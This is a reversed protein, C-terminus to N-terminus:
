KFIGIDINFYEILQKLQEDNKQFVVNLKGLANVFASDLPIFNDIYDKYSLVVCSKVNNRVAMIKFWIDDAHLCLKEFIEDDFIKDDFCGPFYLIGGVGIPFVYDAPEHPSTFYKWENYKLFHSNNELTMHRAVNCCISGPYIQHANVLREIMDTPYICDDDVTIIIDDPYEKLTYILKKYSRIDKCYKVSLGRAQQQKINVPLTDDSFKDEALWLVVVDPKITQRAISEVALHVSHIRDGYTTLSVVIKEKRQESNVMYDASCRASEKITNIIIESHIIHKIENQRHKRFKNYYKNFLIM